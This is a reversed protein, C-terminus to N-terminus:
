FKNWFSKLVGDVGKFFSKIALIFIIAIIVVGIGLGILFNLM